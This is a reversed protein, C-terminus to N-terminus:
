PTAAPCNCMPAQAVDVVEFVEEACNWRVHIGSNEAQQKASFLMATLEGMDVTGPHRGPCEIVDVGLSFERALQNLRDIRSQAEPPIRRVTPQPTPWSTAQQSGCGTLLVILLSVVIAERATRSHM